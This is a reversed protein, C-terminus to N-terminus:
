ESKFFELRAIPSGEKETAVEIEIRMTKPFRSPAVKKLWHWTTGGQEESGIYRGASIQGQAVLTRSMENHAVWTAITKNKIKVLTKSQTGLGQVLTTVLISIIFLALLTEILTFGRAAQLSNPRLLLNTTRM